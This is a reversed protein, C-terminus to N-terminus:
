DAGTAWAAWATQWEATLSNVIEMHDRVDVPDIPEATLL